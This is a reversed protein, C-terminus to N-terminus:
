SSPSVPELKFSDTNKTSICAGVEATPQPKNDAYYERRRECNEATRACFVVRSLLVPDVVTLCFATAQKVCQDPKGVKRASYDKRNYECSTASPWCYGSLPMHSRHLDFCHWDQAIPKPPEPCAPCAPPEVKPCPESVPEPCSPVAAEPASPRPSLPSNNGGCAALSLVSLSWWLVKM